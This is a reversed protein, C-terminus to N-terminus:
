AVKPANAPLRERVDPPITAKLGDVADVLLRFGWPDASLFDELTDARVQRMRHLAYNAQSLWTEYRHQMGLTNMNM